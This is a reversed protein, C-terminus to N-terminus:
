GARRLLAATEFLCFLLSNAFLLWILLLFNTSYCGLRGENSKKAKELKTKKNKSRKVEQGKVEKKNQSPGGPL